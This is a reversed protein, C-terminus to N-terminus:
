WKGQKRTAPQDPQPRGILEGRGPVRRYIQGILWREETKGRKRDSHSLENQLKGRSAAAIWKIVIIRWVGPCKQSQGLKRRTWRRVFSQLLTMKGGSCVWEVWHLARGSKPVGVGDMVTQYPVSMVGYYNLLHSRPSYTYRPLWLTMEIYYQEDCKNTSPCLCSPFRWRWRRWQDFCALVSAKTRTGTENNSAAEWMETRIATIVITTALRTWWERAPIASRVHEDKPIKRIIKVTALTQKAASVIKVEKDGQSRARAARWGHIKIMRRMKRVNVRVLSVTRQALLQATNRRSIGEIRIVTTELVWDRQALFGTDDVIMTDETVMMVPVM